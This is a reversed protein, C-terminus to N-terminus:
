HEAAVRKLTFLRRNSGVPAAFDTPRAAPPSITKEEPRGGAIGFRITLRSVGAPLCIQLVDGDFRYIGRNTMAKAPGEAPATDITKPNSTPDIAFTLKQPGASGTLTLFKGDFVAGANKIEAAPAPKGEYVCTSVQWIGQLRDGDSLQVEGVAGLSGHLSNNAVDGGRSAIAMACVLAVIAGSAPVWVTTWRPRMADAALALVAPTLATNASTTASVTSRVADALGFPVTVAAGTPTTTLFGASLALGRRTLRSRLLDRAKSLRSLITGTPCGLTRAAADNTAGELYCLVFPARVREPLRQIEEDIIAGVDRWVVEHLADMVPSRRWRREYWRRTRGSERARTAVRRAVGHLWSAVSEANRIAGAKRALILFTAQFADDASHTDGLIRRCVGLVLPGHRRVIAEFAAEERQGAYRALLEADTLGGFADVSASRRIHEVVRNIGGNVVIRGERYPGIM